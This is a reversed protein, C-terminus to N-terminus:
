MMEDMRRFLWFRRVIECNDGKGIVMAIGTMLRVRGKGCPRAAARYVCKYIIYIVLFCMDVVARIVWGM